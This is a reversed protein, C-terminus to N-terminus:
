LDESGALWVRNGGQAKAQYAAQDASRILATVSEALNALGQGTFGAVGLSLTAEGLRHKLFGTRIREAPKLAQQPTLGVCIVGFEDGGYRFPLDIHKRVNRSILGALQKLLHDGAQHGYTDNISKFKDCDIFMLSLPRKTVLSEQALELLREEFCRRNALSTLPDLNSLYEYRSKDQHAGELAAQLWSERHSIVHAMWNLNRKLVLIENEDEREDPLEFGVGYDGEKLRACFREIEKIEKNIFLYNLVRSLPSFGIISIVLTVALVLRLERPHTELLVLFVLSPLILFLLLWLRVKLNVSWGAVTGVLWEVPRSLFNLALILRKAPSAVSQTKVEELSSIWM